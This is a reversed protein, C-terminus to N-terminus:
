KKKEEIVDFEDEAKTLALAPRPDTSPAVSPSGDSQTVFSLLHAWIKPHSKFVKEADAPSILKRKYITKESVKIAELEGAVIEEDEWKRPGKRGAVLKFGPVENGKLLEGEVKARVAKIFDEILGVNQMYWSLKKSDLTDIKSISNDFKAPVKKTMDVFDEAVINLTHEALAPCIAKAKCFMCTKETPVLDEKPKFEVEGRYLRWIFQANFKVEDAFELLEDLSCEWDDLHNLRPQHIRLIFKKFNGLVSFQHLAGLAYLMMQKNKKAYVKVGMGFKLDNVELTEGDNHIIIADGTGCADEELTIHGIPLRQEVLLQHDKSLKKIENTYELIKECDEDSMDGVTEAAGTELYEAAIKHALTGEAAYESDVSPIGREMLVSGRCVMWRDASSPSLLAHESM